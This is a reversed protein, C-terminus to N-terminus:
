RAPLRAFLEIETLGTVALTKRASTKGAVVQLAAAPLGLRDALLRILAANAKGREAVASVRVRLRGASWDAIESRAAGAVVKVPLRVPAAPRSDAM